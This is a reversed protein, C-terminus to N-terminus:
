SIMETMLILSLTLAIKLIIFIKVNKLELLNISRQLQNRVNVNM